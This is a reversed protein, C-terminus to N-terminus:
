TPFAVVFVAVLKAKVAARKASIKPQERQM